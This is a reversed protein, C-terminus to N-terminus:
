LFSLSETTTRNLLLVVSVSVDSENPAEIVSSNSVAHPLPQLEVKTHPMHVVLQSCVWEEMYRLMNRTYGYM